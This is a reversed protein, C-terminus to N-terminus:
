TDQSEKKLYETQTPFALAIGEKEFRRLIELNVRENIEHFLRVDASKVVYIVLINLGAETLDSLYVRPLHDPVANVEHIACLIDKVVEVARAAKQHGSDGTITVNAIRRIFPRTALNEVPSDAVMSNPISVMQGDLTRLRTSRFGVDEVEGTYGAIKVLHGTEFPRDAFITLSGFFNAITEKAALAIALGGVVAVLLLSKVKDQGLLHESILLVAIIAIVIRLTKQVVPVLMDDFRTETQEALRRLAFEVVDVLRYLAYTLAIVGITQATGTWVESIEQSLQLPLKALFVGIGFVAVYAPNALCRTAVTVHSEGKKKALRGAYITLAQQLVRGAVLTAAVVLLLVLFRWLPNGKVIEYGFIRSWVQGLALLDMGDTM